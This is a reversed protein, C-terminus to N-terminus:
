ACCLYKHSFNQVSRDNVSAGSLQFTPTSEEHYWLWYEKLNMPTLNLLAQSRQYSRHYSVQSRLWFASLEAQAPGVIKLLYQLNWVRICMQYLPLWCRPGYVFGGFLLVFFLYECIHIYLMGMLFPVMSITHKLLYQLNWVYVCRIYPYGAGQAICLGGLYDFFFM